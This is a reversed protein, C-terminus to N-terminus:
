RCVTLTQRVQEQGPPGGEHPAHLRPSEERGSGPGAPVPEVPLQPVGGSRCGCWVHIYTGGLGLTEWRRTSWRYVICTVLVERAAVSM